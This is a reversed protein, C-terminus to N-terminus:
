LRKPVRGNKSLRYTQYRESIKPNSTGIKSLYSDIESERRLFIAYKANKTPNYGFSELSNKVFSLLPLSRNTFNIGPNKYLKGKIKHKDIFFCGDTDVLGRVCAMSYELNNKIWEPVSVQNKVKNGICLGTDAFYKSLLTRSITITTVMSNARDTVSPKLKFIKEILQSVYRVYEKDDIKNLTICIQRKTIGGDGLLIGVFEALDVSREPITIEKAIFPSNIKYENIKFSNIGGLKRGQDTGFNGYLEHRRLGGLRANVSKSWNDSFEERKEPIKINFRNEVYQTFLHPLLIKGSRWDHMTRVTVGGEKALTKWTLRSKIRITEFYFDLDNKSLKYRMGALKLM